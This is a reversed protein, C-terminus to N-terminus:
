YKGDHRRTKSGGCAIVNFESDFCINCTKHRSNCYQRHQMYLNMSLDFYQETTLGSCTGHKTREHEWFGIDNNGKCSKWYLSLQSQLSQPLAYLNFKETSCYQCVNSPNLFLGHITFQNNDCKQLALKYESLANLCRSNQSNVSKPKNTLYSNNSSNASTNAYNYICMGIYFTLAAAILIKWKYHMIELQTRKVEDPEYLKQPM